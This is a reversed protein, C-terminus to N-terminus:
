VLIKAHVVSPMKRIENFVQRPCSHHLICSGGEQRTRFYTPVRRVVEM